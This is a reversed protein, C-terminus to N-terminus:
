STPTEEAAVGLRRRLANLMGATAGWIRRGEHELVYYTREAGQWVVTERHMRRPHLVVSLPAEFVEAVEGPDPVPTFDGPAEGVFPTVRYGTVTEYADFAGLLTVHQPALGIEEHAERLAAAAPGADTPDLRGGPFSIQGAHRKLHDARRTFTVMRGHPRPTILMLVAAPRLVQGTMGSAGGNLDYDSCPAQGTAPGVDDADVADLVHTVRQMLREDPAAAAPPADRRDTM